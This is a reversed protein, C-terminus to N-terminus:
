RVTLAQATGFRLNGPLTTWGVSQFVLRLGTLAPQAPIAYGFTATGPAVAPTGGVVVLNAPDLHLTGFPPMAIPSALENLGAALVVLQGPTWQVRVADGAGPAFASGLSSITTVPLAAMPEFDSRTVIGDADDDGLYEVATMM